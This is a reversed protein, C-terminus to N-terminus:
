RNIAHYVANAIELLNEREVEGVLAYGLPGDIWYFLRIDGHQAFRFATDAGADANRVVYLTLRMGHQNEFMFQAAAGSPAPLLRGGVLRYGLQALNPAQVPAGLRKSLWKVLHAEQESTVEVPHLVEPTYVAHANAAQEVPFTAIETDPLPIGHLWWGIAVGVVVYVLAAAGHVAM